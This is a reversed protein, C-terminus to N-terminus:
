LSAIFPPIKKLERILYTVFRSIGLEDPHIGDVTGEFDNGMTNKLDIFFLLPYEKQLQKVIRHATARKTNHEKVSKRYLWANRRDADTLLVVPINSKASCLKRLFTELREELLVSDM